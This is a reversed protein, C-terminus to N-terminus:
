VGLGLLDEIEPKLEFALSCGNLKLSGTVKHCHHRRGMGWETKPFSTCSLGQGGGEFLPM